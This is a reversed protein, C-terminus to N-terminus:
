AYATLWEARSRHIVCNHLEAVLTMKQCKVLSVITEGSRANSLEVQKAIHCKMLSCSVGDDLTECDFRAEPSM